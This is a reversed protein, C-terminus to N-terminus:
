EPQLALSALLYRWVRNPSPIHLAGPWAKTKRADHLHIQTKEAQLETESQLLAVHRRNVGIQARVRRDHGHQPQGARHCTQEDL